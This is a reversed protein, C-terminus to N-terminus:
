FQLELDHLVVIRYETTQTAAITKMVNPMKPTIAISTAIM